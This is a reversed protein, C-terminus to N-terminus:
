RNIGLFKNIENSEDNNVTANDPADQGAETAWIKSESISRYFAKM